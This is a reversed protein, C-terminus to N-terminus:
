NRCKKTRGRKRFHLNTEQDKQIVRQPTGLNEQAFEIPKGIYAKQLQRQTGCSIIGFLLFVTYIHKLRIM